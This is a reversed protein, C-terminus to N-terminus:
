STSCSHAPLILGFSLRCPCPREHVAARSLVATACRATVGLSRACNSAIPAQASPGTRTVTSVLACRMNARPLSAPETCMPARPSSGVNSALLALLGITLPPTTPSALSISGLSHARSMPMLRRDAAHLSALLRRPSCASHSTVASASSAWATRTRQRFATTSAFAFPWSTRPLVHRYAPINAPASSVM